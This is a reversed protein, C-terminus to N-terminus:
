EELQKWKNGMTPKVYEKMKKFLDVASDAVVVLGLNSANMFGEKVAHELLNIVPTYYGDINLLGIPKEHLGIQGWCIIEFLEDFTGVGGPLAIYGDALDSLQKKREHMSDVEILQSLGQHVVEGRFLGRPMVGTVTGGFELVQNAIEAMLGLRSGGYLLEIGETAFIRGLERAEKAYSTREGLNAGAYVCVKKMIEGV